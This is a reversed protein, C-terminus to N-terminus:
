LGGGLLMRCAIRHVDYSLSRKAACIQEGNDSGNHIGVLQSAIINKLDAYKINEERKRLPLADICRVQDQIKNVAENLGPMAPENGHQALPSFAGRAGDRSNGLVFIDDKLASDQNFRRFEAGLISEASQLIEDQYGQREWQTWGESSDRIAAIVGPLRRMRSLRQESSLSSSDEFNATYYLSVLADFSEFGVAKACDLVYNFRSHLSLDKSNVCATRRGHLDTMKAGGTNELRSQSREPRGMASHGEANGASPIPAPGGTAQWSKRLLPQLSPSFMLNDDLDPDLM